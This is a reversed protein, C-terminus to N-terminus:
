PEQNKDYMRALALRANSHYQNLRALRESLDSLLSNRLSEDLAQQIGVMQDHLVLRRMTLSDWRKQDIGPKESIAQIRADMVELERRLQALTELTSVAAVFGNTARVPAFEDPQATGRLVILPDLDKEHLAKELEVLRLGEEEFRQIAYRYAQQASEPDNRRQHAYGAALLAEQVAPDHAQRRALVQWPRLAEQYRETGRKTADFAFSHTIDVVGSIEGPRCPVYRDSLLRMLADPPVDPKECLVRRKFRAVQKTGDAALEAWGLGLLALNSVPGDLSVRKFYERATGGQDNRLWHWGMMLNVHDRLVRHDHAELKMYGMEDLLALGRDKNGTNLLALGFNFHDYLGKDEISVQKDLATVVEAYKHQQLYLQGWLSYRRRSVDASWPKRLHRLSTEAGVYDEHELMLVAQNLWFHNYQDVSWRKWLADAIFKARPYLALQQYDRLAVLVADTTAKDLEGAQEAALVLGAAAGLSGAQQLYHAAQVVPRSAFDQGAQRQLSQRDVFVAETAPAAEPADSWAQAWVPAASILLIVSAFLRPKM